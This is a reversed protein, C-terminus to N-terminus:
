ATDRVARGDGDRPGDWRGCPVTGVGGNGAIITQMDSAKVVCGV